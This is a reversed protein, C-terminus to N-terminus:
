KSARRYGTNGVTKIDSKFDPMLYLHSVVENTTEPSDDVQRLDGNIATWGNGGNYIMQQGQKPNLGFIIGYDKGITLQKTM